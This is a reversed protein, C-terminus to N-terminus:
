TALLVTLSQPKNWLHPFTIFIPAVSKDNRGRKHLSDTAEKLPQVVHPLLVCGFFPLTLWLSPKGAWIFSMRNNNSCDVRCQATGKCCHYHTPDIIAVIVSQVKFKVFVAIDVKKGTEENVIHPQLSQGIVKMLEHVDREEVLM